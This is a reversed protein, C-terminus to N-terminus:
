LRSYQPPRLDTEEIYTETFVYRKQRHIRSIKVSDSLKTLIQIRQDAGDAFRFFKSVSPIKNFPCVTNAVLKSGVKRSQVVGCQLLEIKPGGTM